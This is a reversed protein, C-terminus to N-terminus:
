QQFVIQLYNYLAIHWNDFSHYQMPYIDFRTNELPKLRNEYSILSDYGIIQNQLLFDFNGSSVYLYDISYDIFENSQLIDRYYDSKEMYGSFAGFSAIYDLNGCLVSNYMTAAGRSLGAFARHHRSDILDSENTSEAFTSYNSEIYPILDNRLEDKFSYTLVDLDDLFDDEVYFTPTVVIMPEIVEYYILNDIMIKNEEHMILWSTEDDGTGHLLYLINYEKEEDYNYPLYVYADKYVSRLDSAYAFTEYTVKEVTGKEPSEIKDYIDPVAWIELQAILRNNANLTSVGWILSISLIILVFVIIPILPPKKPLVKNKFAFFSGVIAGVIAFIAQILYEINDLQAHFYNTLFFVIYFGIGVLVMLIPMEIKRISIILLFLGINVTVVTLISAIEGLILHRTIGIIGTVAILLMTVDFIVNSIKNNKVSLVLSKFNM